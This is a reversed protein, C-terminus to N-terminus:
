EARLADVPDIKTTARAPLYSALLAVALVLTPVAAFVAGARPNVGFLFATTLRVAALALPVGIVIGTFALLAGLVLGIIALLVMGAM